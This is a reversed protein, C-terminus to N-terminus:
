SAMGSDHENIDAAVDDALTRARAQASWLVLLCIVAGFFPVLWILLLQRGRHHGSYEPNRLVVWTAWCDSLLIAVAILAIFNM